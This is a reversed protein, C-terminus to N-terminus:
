NKDNPGNPFSNMELKWQDVYEKFHNGGLHAYASYIENFNAKDATTAFGKIRCEDLAYKMRDRLLTVTGKNNDKLHMEINEVSDKVPKMENSIADRIEQQREAKKRALAEESNQKKKEARESWFNKIVVGFGLFSLISITISIIEAWNVNQM